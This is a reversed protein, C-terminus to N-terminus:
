LLRRGRGALESVGASLGIWAQHRFWPGGTRRAKKGAESIYKQEPWGICKQEPTSVDPSYRGPYVQKLGLTTAVYPFGWAHVHFMPTVPMYVDGDNLRGHGTGTIASRLAITHLVLQRHSFYVGKPLGTTGTTYFTTARTNEDLDPFDFHPDAANLLTEYDTALPLTTKPKDGFDDIRVLSKVAKVRDWIQELVSFFESNVLIIDDKAHNITYLIQEPSLRVNITHLTAGMMPIAFFCELYRHSDWDMVAVTDGAKIGLGALGSALRGVREHLQRYTQRELDGYVVVQEPGRTLGTELIQRILLPYQYASPTNIIVNDAM